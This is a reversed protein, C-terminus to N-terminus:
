IILVIHKESIASWPVYLKKSWILLKLGCFGVSTEYTNFFNYIIHNQNNLLVATMEKLNTFQLQYSEEFYKYM